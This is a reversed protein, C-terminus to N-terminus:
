NVAPLNPCIQRYPQKPFWRKWEDHSL